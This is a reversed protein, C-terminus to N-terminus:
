NIFKSVSLRASEGQLNSKNNKEEYDAWAADYENENGNENGNENENQKRKNYAIAGSQKILVWGFEEPNTEEDCGSNNWGDKFVCVV